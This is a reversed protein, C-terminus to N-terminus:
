ERDHEGLISHRQIRANHDCLRELHTKRLRTQVLEKHKRVRDYREPRVIASATRLFECWVHAKLHDTFGPLPTQHNIVTVSVNEHLPVGVTRVVLKWAFCTRSGNSLLIGGDICIVIIRFVDLDVPSFVNCSLGLIEKCHIENLGARKM